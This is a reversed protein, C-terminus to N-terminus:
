PVQDFFGPMKKYRRLIEVTKKAVFYETITKFAEVEVAGEKFIEYFM